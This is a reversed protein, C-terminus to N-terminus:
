DNRLPLSNERRERGGEGKWGSSSAGVAYILNYEGSQAILFDEGAGFFQFFGVIAVNM